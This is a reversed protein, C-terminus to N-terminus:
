RTRRGVNEKFIRNLEGSLESADKIIKHRKYYGGVGEYGIGIAYVKAIKEAKKIEKVTNGVSNPSGDCFVIIVKNKENRKKISETVKRIALSENTSGLEQNAIKLMDTMKFKKNWDKHTKFNSGYGFIAFAKSSLDLAKAFVTAAKCAERGSLGYMSDSQDCLLAVAMDRDDNQQSMQRMFLRKNGVFLKPIKRQELKGSEYGSEFRTYELDKLISVSKKVKSLNSNVFDRLDDYKLNCLGTDRWFFEGWSFHSNKDGFMSKKKEKNKEEESKIRQGRELKVSNDKDKQQQQNQPQLKQQQQQSDGNGNQQQQQQKKREENRQQSRKMASKMAQIIKNLLEEMKKKKEKEKEKDKKKDDETYDDMFPLYYKLIKEKMFEFLKLSTDIYQVKDLQKRCKDVVKSVKPNIFEWCFIESNQDGWDYCNTANWCFQNWLKSEWEDSYKKPNLMRDDWLSDFSANFTSINNFDLYVKAGRYIQCIKYEIRVDELANFLAFLQKANKGYKNCINDIDDYFQKDTVTFRLHSAEHILFGIDSQYLPIGKPYYIVNNSIDASWENGPSLKINLKNAIINAIFNFNDEKM